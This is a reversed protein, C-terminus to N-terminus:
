ELEGQNNEKKSQMGTSSLRVRTRWLGFHLAFFSFLSTCLGWPWFLNSQESACDARWSSLGQTTRRTLKEIVLKKPERSVAPSKLKNLASGPSEGTGAQM